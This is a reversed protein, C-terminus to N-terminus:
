GQDLSTLVSDFLNKECRDNKFNECNTCSKTNPSETNSEFAGAVAEYGICNNAVSTMQGVNAM